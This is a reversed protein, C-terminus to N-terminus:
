RELEDDDDVTKPPTILNRESEAKKQTDQVGQRVFEIIEEKTVGEVPIEYTKEGIKTQYVDRGFSDETRRIDVSEIDVNIINNMGNEIMM